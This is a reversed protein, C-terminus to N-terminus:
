PSATVAPALWTTLMAHLMAGELPKRLVLYGEEEAQRLEPVGHEGSVIAGCADPCRDFLAKLVELGSEGSRLRQDCLIAHPMFGRDICAFAETATAVCRVDVGWAQLLTRSAACVQPDDDIFLCRGSLRHAPLWPAPHASPVDMATPLTARPLSIWFRSGRGEISEFGHTAQMLEACRAVVALGLGLGVRDVRWSHAPRYFASHIQDRDHDAVGMGTDWVEIRWDAGRSRAGLLVGGRSTYRLANHALNILSQRLLMADGMVAADEPARHVRWHLGRSRAEERFLNAVEDLVGNVSMPALRVGVSGSEIRSLDLLSNFMHNMSRTCQRLDALASTLREDHNRLAISEVLLGIAHMPQRLDHSAVSLFRSKDHLAREAENKAQRYRDALQASADELRIQQVFFRHAMVAHRCMAAAYMLSMPLILPWDHAFVWPIAVCCVGWGAAFTRLFAGLTPTQHATNTAMTGAVTVLLMLLYEFSAHPNEFRVVVLTSGLGLGHVFATRLVVPRWRSLQVAPDLRALDWRYQRLKRLIWVASAAYICVLGGFGWSSLGGHWFWFLYPIGALPTACISYALRTYSMDLLRTRGADGLGSDDEQLLKLAAAIPGPTSYANM